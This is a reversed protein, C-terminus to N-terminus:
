AVNHTDKYCEPSESLFKLECCVTRVYKEMSSGYIPLEDAVEALFEDTLLYSYKYPAIIL